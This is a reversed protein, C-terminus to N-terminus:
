FTVMFDISFLCENGSSGFLRAQTQTRGDSESSKLMEESLIKELSSLLHKFMQTSFDSEDRTIGPFTVFRHDDRSTCCTAKRHEKDDFMKAFCVTLQVCAMLLCSKWGIHCHRAYTQSLRSHAPRVPAYNYYNACTRWWVLNANSEAALTRRHRIYGSVAGEISGFDAVSASKM